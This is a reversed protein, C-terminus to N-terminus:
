YSFGNKRIHVYPKGPSQRRGSEVAAVYIWHDGAEARTAVRCHLVGVADALDVGHVTPTAAVGEFAPEGPAFGAGFHKFLKGPDEGLLNLTFKGARDILEVAPRGRKVAVTVMPPEFAAQQVWSALMGTSADGASCTLISCGSPVLALAEGLSEDPQTPM